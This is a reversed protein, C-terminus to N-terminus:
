YNRLVSTTKTYICNGCRGSDSDGNKRMNDNCQFIAIESPSIHYVNSLRASGWNVKKHKSYQPSITQFKIGAYILWFRERKRNLQAM